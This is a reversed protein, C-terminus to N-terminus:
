LNQILYTNFTNSTHVISHNINLKAMKYVSSTYYYYYIYYMKVIKKKLFTDINM